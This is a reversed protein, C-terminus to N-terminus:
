QRHDEQAQEEGGRRPPEDEDHGVHLGGRLLPRMGPLRHLVAGREGLGWPACGQCGPWCREDKQFDWLLVPLGRSRHPLEKKTSPYQVTVPKRLAATVTTRIAKLVGLM